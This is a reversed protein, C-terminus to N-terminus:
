HVALTQSNSQGTTPSPNEVYITDSGASAINGVPVVATLTLYSVITTALPNGNWYVVAGSVFGSGNVTLTFQPGGVSATSPSISTLTPASYYIQFPVTNSIGGDPNIADAAFTGVATLLYAPATVSLQTSSIFTTPLTYNSNSQERLSSCATCCPANSRVADPSFSAHRKAMCGDMEIFPFLVIQWKL